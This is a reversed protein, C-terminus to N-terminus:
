SVQCHHAALELIRNLDLPKTLYEIVNLTVAWEPLNPIASILVVPIDAIEPDYLQAQRFAAGDMYPMAIDLLVLAPRRATLYLMALAEVGNDVAKVRFGEEALLAVLLDQIDKDDDVVLITNPM